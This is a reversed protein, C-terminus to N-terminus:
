SQMNKLLGIRSLFFDKMVQMITTEDANGFDFDDNLRDIPLLVTSLFEKLDANTMTTVITNHKEVDIKAFIVNLKDLENLTYNQKLVFNNGSILYM